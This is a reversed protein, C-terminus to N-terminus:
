ASGAVARDVTYRTKRIQWWNFLYALTLFV